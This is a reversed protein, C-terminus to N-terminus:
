GQTWGIRQPGHCESYVDNERADTRLTGAIGEIRRAVTCGQIALSLTLGRGSSRGGPPTGPGGNGVLVWKGAHRTMEAQTTHDGFLGGDFRIRGDPQVTKRRWIMGLRRRMLPTVVRQAGDKLLREIAEERSEGKLLGKARSKENSNLRNMAQALVQEFVAVPAADGRAPDPDDPGPRQGGHFAPHNTVHRLGSWVNEHLKSRKGGVKKNHLRIELIKLVGPVDWDPGRADKRQIFVKQGGAIHRSNAAAGNDYGLQIPRGHTECMTILAAEIVEANESKGVAWGLAKRSARDVFAVVRPCSVEGDPWVVKVAFERADGDM